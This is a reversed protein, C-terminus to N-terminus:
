AQQPGETAKRALYQRQAELKAQALEELMQTAQRAMEQRRWEMSGTHAGERQAKKIELKHQRIEASLQKYRQKWDARFALYTEKTTFQSM